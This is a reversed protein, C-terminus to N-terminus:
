FLGDESVMMSNMASPEHFGDVSVEPSVEPANYQVEYTAHVTYLGTYPIPVGRKELIYGQTLFPSVERKKGMITEQM